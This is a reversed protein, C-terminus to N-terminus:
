EAVVQDRRSHQLVPAIILSLPLLEHLPMQRAENSLASERAQLLVYVSIMDGLEVTPREQEEFAKLDPELPSVLTEEVAGGKNV